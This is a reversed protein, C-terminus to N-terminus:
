RGDRYYGPPCRTDPCRFSGGINVCTQNAGRCYGHETCEDIDVCHHNHVLNYGGPCTCLYSGLTNECGAQCLKPHGEEESHRFRSFAVQNIIDGEHCEDIDECRHADVLRYGRRCGCKYSGFTNICNQECLNTKEGCEDVDICHKGSGDADRFGVKCRCRYSGITNECTSTQPSCIGTNAYVACEDVDVCSHGDAGLKYGASNCHCEYSGFKNVCKQSCGGNNILCEDVDVCRGQFDKEFGKRCRCFYSGATNECISTDHPCLHAHSKRCEDIDICQSGLMRYGTPCECRYSGPTNICTQLQGCANLGEVCENIDECSNRLENLRFGAETCIKRCLYSAYTNICQEDRLCATPVLCEDIDVCKLLTESFQLGRECDIHKCHTGDPSLYHGEPCATIRLSVIPKHIETITQHVQELVQVPKQEVVHHEVIKQSVIPAQVIKEHVTEQVIPVHEQRVIKEFKQQVIPVHEQVIKEQIIPVHEQVIKQQVQVVPEQVIRQHEKTITTTHHRHEHVEQVLPAAHRVTETHVITESPRCIRAPCPATLRLRCQRHALACRRTRNGGAGTALPTMEATAEPPSLTTTVNEAGYAAALVFSLLTVLPVILKSPLM